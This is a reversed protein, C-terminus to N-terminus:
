RTPARQIGRMCQHSAAVLEALDMRVPGLEVEAIPVPQMKVFNRGILKSAEVAFRVIHHRGVALGPLLELRTHFRLQMAQHVFVIAVALRHQHDAM